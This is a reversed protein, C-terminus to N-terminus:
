DAQASKASPAFTIKDILFGRGELPCDGSGYEGAGFIPTPRPGEEVLVRGPLRNIMLQYSHSLIFFRVYLL